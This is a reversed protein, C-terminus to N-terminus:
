VDPDWCLSFIHAECGGSHGVPVMLQEGAIYPDTVETDFGDESNCNSFPEPNEVHPIGDVTIFAPGTRPNKIQKRSQPIPPAFLTSIIGIKRPSIKGFVSPKESPTITQHIPILAIPRNLM